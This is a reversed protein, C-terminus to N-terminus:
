EGDGSQHRSLDVRGCPGLLGVRPEEVAGSTMSIRGLQLPGGWVSVSEGEQVVGHKVGCPGAVGVPHPNLNVAESHLRHVGSEIEHRVLSRPRVGEGLGTVDDGRVGAVLAVIRQPIRGAGAEMSATADFGLEAPEAVIGVISQRRLARPARIHLDGKGFQNVPDVRGLVQEDELTGFIDAIKGVVLALNPIRSTLFQVLHWLPPASLSLQFVRGLMSAQPDQWTFTSKSVPAPCVPPGCDSLESQAMQWGGDPPNAPMVSLCRVSFTVGLLGVRRAPSSLISYLMVLTVTSVSLTVGTTLNQILFFPANRSRRIAGSLVM